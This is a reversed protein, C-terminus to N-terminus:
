GKTRVSQLNKKNIPPFIASMSIAFAYSKL